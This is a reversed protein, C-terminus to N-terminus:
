IKSLEHSGVGVFNGIIRTVLHALRSLFDLKVMDALRYISGAQLVASVMHRVKISLDDALSQNFVDAM